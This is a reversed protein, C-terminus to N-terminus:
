TNGNCLERLKHLTILNKVLMVNTVPGVGGPVPSIFSAREKAAEFEVDGVLKGDVVNEGVDIIIAGPKIWSGKILNAKGAAAIVIDAKEIHEQLNKTKIHCVTVTAMKDLLLIAIPKGVVDSHGVIVAEKGAIECGTEELLTLVASATPSLVRDGIGHLVRRGEVDKLLDIATLVSVSNIQPPLPSFVMIGTIEPDSNLKLIQKYVENETAHEPLTRAVYNITLKKLLNELSRSYLLTDKSHGVQVTGLTLTVGTKHIISVNKLAIEIYKKAIEVGNLVHCPKTM